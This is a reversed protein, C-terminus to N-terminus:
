SVKECLNKVELESLTGGKRLREIQTDIESTENAMASCLHIDFTLGATFFPLVPFIDPCTSQICYRYM